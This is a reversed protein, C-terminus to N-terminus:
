ALAPRRRNRLVKALGLGGLLGLGMLASSPLPVASPAGVEINDLSISARSGTVLFGDWVVSTLNTWGPAFVFHQFDTAGGTSDIIGDLTFDQTITGGGFLTGVARIFDANPYGSRASVFLEAGDFSSLSFAGGGSKAMTLPGALGPSDLGAFHTGNYALGTYIDVTHWHSSTFNFGVSTKTVGWVPNGSSAIDDFTITGAQATGASVWLGGVAMGLIALIRM